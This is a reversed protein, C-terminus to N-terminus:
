LVRVSWVNFSFPILNFIIIIIAIIDSFRIRRGDEAFKINIYVNDGARRM